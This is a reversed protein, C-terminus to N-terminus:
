NIGISGNSSHYFNFSAEEVKFYNSTWHTFLKLSVQTHRNRGPSNTPNSLWQLTHIIRFEPWWRRRHRTRRYHWAPGQLRQCRRTPNVKKRLRQMDLRRRRWVFTSGPVTSVNSMKAQRSVRLLTRPRKFYRTNTHSWLRQMSFVDCYYKKFIPFDRM